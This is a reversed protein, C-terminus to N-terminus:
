AWTSLCGPHHARLGQLPQPLCLRGGRQPTSPVGHGGPLSTRVPSHACGLTSTVRESSKPGLHELSVRVWSHGDELSVGCAFSGALVHTMVLGRGWTKIVKPDLATKPPAARPLEPCVNIEWLQSPQVGLDRGLRVGHRCDYDSGERQTRRPFPCERPTELVLGSVGGRPGVRRVEWPAM